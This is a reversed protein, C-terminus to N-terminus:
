QYEVKSRTKRFLFIEAAHEHRHVRTEELQRLVDERQGIEQAAVRLVQFTFCSHFTTLKELHPRGLVNM